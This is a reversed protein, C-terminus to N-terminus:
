LVVDDLMLGHQANFGGEFTPNEQNPGHEKIRDVITAQTQPDLEELRRQFGSRKEYGRGTGIKM